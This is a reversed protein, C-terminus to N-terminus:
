STMGEFEWDFYKMLEQCCDSWTPRECASIVSNLHSILEKWNFHSVVVVSRHYIVTSDIRKRIAEPTALLFRFIDAGPQDIEGIELVVHAYVEDYLEPQWAKLYITLDSSIRKIEIQM